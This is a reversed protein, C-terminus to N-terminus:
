EIQILQNKPLNKLKFKGYQIRILKQIKLNFHNIINRIERNKGETLVIKLWTELKKQQLIEIKKPKYLMGDIKIGSNIKFLRQQIHGFVKVKYVREIQNKSLEMERKFDGDNTLLLLGETNIDLRGITMYNQMEPPMLHFVTQKGNPDHHTTVTGAPKHFMWIKRLKKEFTISRNNISIHDRQSVLHSPFPVIAANVRVEGNKIVLEAQKRSCFGALAIAKSLQIQENM